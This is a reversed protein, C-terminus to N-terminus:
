FQTRVGVILNRGSQPVTDKLVATSYRIDQNLLNKVLAFWTVRMAQLKQTYSLNADLQTYSPTQSSEFAALRDQKLARLVRAGSAWPGQKWGLDVGYRTAPQLPLSGQNDLKGRSTDAFGRVSFGENNLNYSVEVEAGHITADGQSWFRQLFEGAPDANGTEDVQGNTRGYVYNKVKNQFLNGKWRVLGETKQLSLEINHSTEKQLSGNGIDFTSTSEHPGNSYLEEVTPARQAVSYTAGLGYGPVFSWLAGTSWSFLNFDRDQLGEPRRKVSELRLGASALVSGFKREEVLFGAFTGSKTKPTLQPSGDVASLASYNNQETQIGFNGRWGALPKHALEWRTQLARNSFVTNATGDEKKETHTYDTYGLKFKFSEIGAFPERVLSDIDYRTQHLDIFSKEATPIGYHDDLSSVSAGIHGWDAIYSGGVGVSSEHTFSNPLRGSASTADGQKTNGPIKYNDTDRYNGDVHLGIQGASGDVSFSTNKQGDVTGYRAEVQGTPKGVLETPIRDNVVNVLGGIAGSGYLLAAPGRLIEIQRATAAETAVAHDNSVTSVDATSMGNQLMLVRPGEMGRIIPRSAGAGFASASVGLEQSLTDGLSNGLKNRLEDGALVKAPTLIQANEEAAFPSATVVVEQLQQSQQPPPATQVTQAFAAASMVALASLVASALLTPQVQM